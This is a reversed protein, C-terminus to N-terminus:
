NDTTVNIGSKHVPNCLTKVFHEALGVRTDGERGTYPLGNYTYGSTCDCILFLKM